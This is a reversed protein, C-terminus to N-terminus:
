QWNQMALFGTSLLLFISIFMVGVFFMNTWRRYGQHLFVELWENSSTQHKLKDELHRSPVFPENEWFLSCNPMMNKPPVDTLRLVQEIKGRVTITELLLRYIGNISHLAVLCVMLIVIPGFLILLYHHSEKAQFIGGITAAILTAVLGAFFAVRKQHLDHYKHIEDVVLKYVEILKDEEVTM